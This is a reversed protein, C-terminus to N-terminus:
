TPFLLLLLVRVLARQREAQLLFSVKEIRGQASPLLAPPRQAPFGAHRTRADPDREPCAWPRHRAPFGQVANEAGSM